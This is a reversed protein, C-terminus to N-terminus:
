PADVLGLRVLAEAEEPTLDVDGDLVWRQHPEAQAVNDEDGTFRQMVAYLLYVDSFRQMSAHMAQLRDALTRDNM